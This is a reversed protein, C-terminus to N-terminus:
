EMEEDARVFLWLVTAIAAMVSGTSLAAVWGFHQAVLPVTIAGFGGVANGGTNLIGAAAATHRGAVGTVAAWYAGETLQTFGFCLSLLVVALAANTAAAGAWLLVAVIPLCILAPIRCGLRLGRSRSLADCWAGGVAAGVAGVLWPVTAVFGGELAAFGRVQVLYVFFWNFFIYFVYNMSFYSLTLLLVNRNRLVRKWAGPEEEAPSVRGARIYALEEDEVAPHETPFDRAYWWWLIASGFALPATVVFSLRWGVTVALWAILPGTAAAGLTLGSSTLGTPFAWGGPPFWNRIAGAMTPFLPAQVAGMAFRLVILIGFLVGTGLRETGPVFGVALNAVGWAVAIWALTRRPGFVDGFVGGPFQCLAYAWAFAALVMGLEVQSMGLEGMMSEGAVSMNMRLVYAVFSLAVLVALVNWRVRGRPRAGAHLPNQM